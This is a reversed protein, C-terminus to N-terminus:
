IKIISKKSAIDLKDEEEYTLIKLSSKRINVM